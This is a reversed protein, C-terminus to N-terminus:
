RVRFKEVKKNMDGLLNVRNWGTRNEEDGGWRINDICNISTQHANTCFIAESSPGNHISSDAIKLLM